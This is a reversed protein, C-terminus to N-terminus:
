APSAVDTQKSRARTHRIGAVVLAVGVAFEGALVSMAFRGEVWTNTVVNVVLFRQGSALVHARHLVTLLGLVVPEGILLAGAVVATPFRRERRWWSGLAGFLPGTILGGVFYVRNATFELRLDGLFGHGGLDEVLTACLYWGTLASVTAALGVLAGWRPRVCVAGAVFPILVWPTSLSGITNRLQSVFTRSGGGQDTAAAMAAGLVASLALARLVRLRTSV